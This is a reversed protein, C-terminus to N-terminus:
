LGEFLLNMKHSQGKCPLIKRLDLGNRGREYIIGLMQVKALPELNNKQRREHLRRQNKRLIGLGASLFLEYV